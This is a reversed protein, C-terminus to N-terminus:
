DDADASAIEELISQKAENLTLALERKIERDSVTEDGYCSNYYNAAIDMELEWQASQMYSKIFYTKENAVRNAWEPKFRRAWKMFLRLSYCQHEDIWELMDQIERNKDAASLFYDSPEKTWIGHLVIDERSYQAKNPHDAHIFYRMAGVEDKCPQPIPQNIADMIGKVQTFSKKGNFKLILHYHEKKPSGDPQEDSDHLPSKAWSGCSESIKDEWDDPLSEPYVVCVWTRTRMDAQGVQATLPQETQM